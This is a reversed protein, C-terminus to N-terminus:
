KMAADPALDQTIVVGTVELPQYANTSNLVASGTTASAAGASGIAILPLAVISAAGKVTGVAMHGSALAIHKSGQASHAISGPSAMTFTSFLTLAVLSISKISAYKM